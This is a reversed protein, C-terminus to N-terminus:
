QFHDRHVLEARRRHRQKKIIVYGFLEQGALMPCLLYGFYAMVPLEVFGFCGFQTCPRGNGDKVFIAFLITASM